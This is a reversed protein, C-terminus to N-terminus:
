EEIIIDRNKKNIIGLLFYSFTQILRKLRRITDSRLRWIFELSLKDLIDPVIKEEGSCMALSAGICIVKYKSYNKVIFEAIIEQKPTPLTILILSDEDLKKPIFKVIESTPGFPLETSTVNINYKEKLYNKSKDSLKGLVHIKKIYDPLIMESLIKRGPIKKMKKTGLLKSFVGDPWHYLSEYLKVDKNFYYGLFALNLGSLVFNKQFINNLNKVLKIKKQVVFESVINHFLVFDKNIKKQNFLFYQLIKSPIKLLLLTISAIQNNNKLSLYNEKFSIYYSFFNKGSAGGTKMRVLNKEYKIFDLNHIKILRVFFDFDGSIKYRKNYFGYNEYIKKKIISAPHPPIIGFNLMWKKFNKSPYYRAIKSFNRGRFFTLSFFFIDNDPKKEMIEIASELSNNSHYIDDANLISIYKGTSNKIGKNIADYIGDDLESIYTIPINPETCIYKKIINKTQDNSLGDIIIHEINRYTQSKVSNLTYRITDESNKCVTIISIKPHM